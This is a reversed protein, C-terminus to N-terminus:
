EELLDILAGAPTFRGQAGLPFSGFGFPALDGLEGFTLPRIVKGSWDAGTVAARDDEFSVYIVHGLGRCTKALGVICYRNNNMRKLAVSKGQQAYIIDRNNSAVPVNRLVETEGIDVDCSWMWESGDAAYQYFPSAITGILDGDAQAISWDIIRRISM